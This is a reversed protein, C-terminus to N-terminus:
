QANWALRIGINFVRNGPPTAGRYYGTLDSRLSLSARTKTSDKPDYFALFRVHRLGLM